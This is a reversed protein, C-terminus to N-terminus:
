EKPQWGNYLPHDAALPLTVPQNTRLSHYVATLLEASERAEALTVPLRGNTQVATHFRSFQGAYGELQPVFDALAADILAQNELSTAVFSWPEATNDAYPALNSEVTVREFCYRQRTIEVASGLTVSSAVLSGDGMELSLTVCDETEIPNVLTKARAFVSTAPGLVQYLADHAHIAHTILCGGLETQWKGRWPVAYYPAGRLWHVEITAIFPRGTVGKQRLHLLKQLGQGFRYNFIPMLRKGSAAEAALLRDIDALSGAVPKECIVHKGAALAHLSMAVHMYSPTCIDVVDVGDWRCLDDFSTFIHPINFEDSVKTGKEGDVDCVAVLEFQEPLQRWAKIHERGIGMGVVAVRLVGKSM